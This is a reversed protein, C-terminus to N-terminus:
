WVARCPPPDSPQRFRLLVGAALQRTVAHRLHAWAAGVARQVAQHLASLAKRLRGGGGTQQCLRRRWNCEAGGQINVQAAQVTIHWMQRASFGAGRRLAGCMSRKGCLAAGCRCRSRLGCLSPPLRPVPPPLGLRCRRAPSPARPWASLWSAQRQRFSALSTVPHNHLTCLVFHTARAPRM